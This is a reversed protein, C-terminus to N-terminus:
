KMRQLFSFLSVQLYTKIKEEKKAKLDKTDTKNKKKQKQVNM